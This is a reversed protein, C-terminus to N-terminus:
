YRCFIRSKLCEQGKFLQVHDREDGRFAMVAGTGYGALVYDGILGSPEKTFPHEAFAQLCEQFPKLMLVNEKLVNQLEKLTAEVAAKQEPYYNESGIRTRSCSDYFYSSYPTLVLPLFKL